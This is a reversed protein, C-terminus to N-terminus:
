LSAPWMTVPITTFGCMRGTMLTYAKATYGISLIVRKMLGKAVLLFCPGSYSETSMHEVLENPDVEMRELLDYAGLIADTASFDIAALEHEFPALEQEPYFM